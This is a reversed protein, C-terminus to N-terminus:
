DKFFSNIRRQYVVAYNWVQNVAKAHQFLRKKVSNDKIRYKYTLIQMNVLCGVEITLTKQADVPYFV